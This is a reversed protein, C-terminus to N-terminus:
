IEDKDIKIADQHGAARTFFVKLVKSCEELAQCSMSKDNIRRFAREALGVNVEHAVGYTGIPNMWVSGTDVCDTGKGYGLIFCGQM